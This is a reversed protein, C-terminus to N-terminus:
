LKRKLVVKAGSWTALLGKRVLKHIPGLKSLGRNFKDVVRYRLPSVPRAALERLAAQHRYTQAMLKDYLQRAQATLQTNEVALKGCQKYLSVLLVWLSERDAESLQIDPKFFQRLVRRHNMYNSTVRMWSDARHRYFFLHEPIVDFARGANALKAFVEWDEWSTGRDLEFGGVARLVATRFISNADGFINELCGAVHPGGLPRYAYAFPGADLDTGDEFALFYSSVASLSPNRLIATVFREVMDPRAINDADVPIFYEGRAEALGRNRTAGIGSNSHSLFRFHPYRKHQQDFVRIASPSTSGDDIVLVELNRYTQRALSDLTEPLYLPLNYYPVCLTVLPGDGAGTASSTSFFKPAGDQRDAHLAVLSDYEKVVYRHNAAPDNVERLREHLPARRGPDIALYETLCRHLDRGTPQFLLHEQIDADRVIEPIGGVRSALFPIGNVACEIV